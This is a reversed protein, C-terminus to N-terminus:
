DCRDGRRQRLVVGLSGAIRDRSRVSGSSSAVQQERVAGLRIRGHVSALERDGSGPGHRDWRQVGTGPPPDDRSHLVWVSDLAHRPKQPPHDSQPRDTVSRHALVGRAPQQRRVPASAGLSRPCGRRDDAADESHEQVRGRGPKRERVAAGGLARGNGPEGRVGGLHLSDRRGRRDRVRGCGPVAVRAHLPPDRGAARDEVV